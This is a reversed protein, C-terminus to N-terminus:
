KISSSKILYDIRFYHDISKGCSGWSSIRSTYCQSIGTFRCCLRTSIFIVDQGTGSQLSYRSEVIESYLRQEDDEKVLDIHTASHSEIIMGNKGM